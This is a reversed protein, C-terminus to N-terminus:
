RTPPRWIPANDRFDEVEGALAVPVLRGQAAVAQSRANGEDLYIGQVRSTGTLVIWLNM